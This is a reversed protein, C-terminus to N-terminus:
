AHRHTQSACVCPEFLTMSDCHICTFVDVRDNFNISSKHMVSFCDFDSTSQYKKHIVRFSKFNKIIELNDAETVAKFTLKYASSRQASKSTNLTNM